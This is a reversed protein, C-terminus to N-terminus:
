EWAYVWPCSLPSQQHQEQVIARQLPHLSFIGGDEHHYIGESSNYIHPIQEWVTLPTSTLSGLHLVQGMKTCDRLPLPTHRSSCWVLSTVQFWQPEKKSPVPLSCRWSKGFVIAGSRWGLSKETEREKDSSSPMIYVMSHARSRARWCLPQKGFSPTLYQKTAQAASTWSFQRGREEERQLKASSVLQKHM